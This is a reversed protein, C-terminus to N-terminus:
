DLNNKIIIKGFVNRSGLKEYAKKLDTMQFESDIIPNLKRKQVLVLLKTLDERGGMTTGFLSINKFFLPKLDLEIRSGSTAGCFAIRGGWNLFRLSTKFTDVGVHDIACDYGPQNSKELSSKLAQKLDVEDTCIINRVGLKKLQVKKQSGRVVATIDAGIKQALQIAAVSVGSGAAQILINEGKKLQLKRHIMSYATTYAIPLAVAQKASVGKPLSVLQDISINMESVAGGDQTEGILGFDKCATQFGTKCNKCRGCSLLPQVMVQSGVKLKSSILKKKGKETTKGFFLVEGVIDCGPILPLPFIHGEVGRLVWLDLHNLAIWKVRIRAENLGPESLHVKELVLSDLSGHKLVKWAHM